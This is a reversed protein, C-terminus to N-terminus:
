FFALAGLALFRAAPKAFSAAGSFIATKSTTASPLGSTSNIGVVTPQTFGLSGQCAAFNAQCTSLNAGPSTLCNSLSDQCSSSESTSAPRTTVTIPYSSGSELSSAPHTTVATPYSNGQIATFNALSSSLNAGLSTLCGNLSDQCSSSESSSAPRTTVTISYPSGSDSSSALRATVTTPYPTAQSAIFKAQNTSLTSASSSAPPSGQLTQIPGITIGSTKDSATPRHGVVHPINHDSIGGPPTKPLTISDNAAIIGDYFVRAM